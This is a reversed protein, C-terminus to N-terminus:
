FLLNGTLIGLLGGVISGLSDSWVPTKSIDVRFLDGLIERIFIGIIGAVISSGFINAIGAQTHTSFGKLSSELYNLGFWMSMSGIFGVVIGGAAGVLITVSDFYELDIYQRYSVQESLNTHNHVLFAIYSTIFCVLFIMSLFILLKM